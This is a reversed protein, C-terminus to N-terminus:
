VFNMASFVSILYDDAGFGSIRESEPRHKKIEKQKFKM